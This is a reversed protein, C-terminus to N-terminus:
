SLAKRVKNIAEESGEVQYSLNKLDKGKVTIKVPTAGVAKQVKERIIKEVGDLMVKELASGIDNPRIAKGNLKWTIKVM